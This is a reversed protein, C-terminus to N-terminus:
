TLAHVPVGLRACVCLCLRLRMSLMRVHVLCVTTCVQLYLCPMQVQGLHQPAARKTILLPVRAHRCMPLHAAHVNGPVSVVSCECPRVQLYAQCIDRPKAEHHLVVNLASGCPMMLYRSHKFTSLLVALLAGGGAGVACPYPSTPMLKNCQSVARLGEEVQNLCNASLARKRPSKRSQAPKAAQKAHVGACTKM